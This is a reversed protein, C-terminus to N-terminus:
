VVIAQKVAWHPRPTENPERKGVEWGGECGSHARGHEVLLVGVVHQLHRTAPQGMREKRSGLTPEPYSLNVQAVKPSPHWAIAKPGYQRRERRNRAGSASM